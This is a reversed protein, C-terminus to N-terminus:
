NDRLICEWLSTGVRDGNGLSGRGDEFRRERVDGPDTDMEVKVRGETRRGCNGTEHIVVLALLPLRVRDVRKQLLDMAVRLEDALVAGVSLLIELLRVVLPPLALGLELVLIGLNQNTLLPAQWEPRGMSLVTPAPWLPRAQEATRRENPTVDSQM